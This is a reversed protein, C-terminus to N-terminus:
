WKIDKWFSEGVRVKNLSFAEDITKAVDAYSRRVGLDVGKRICNGAVILPVYERTHDTGPTTPDCGHDATIVLIDDEDMLEMIEPLRSDFYELANGYGIPDNRHGYLMDFDILNAFLLGEWHEKLFSKIADIGEANNGSHVSRTLGRHAFIDEIKGVGCVDYGAEKLYDLVTPQIPPLSFDRRKKTRRFKGPSGIFPRAIVRGVAHEGRLISRAVECMRYLEEVPIIDEHAAIQFVSDASTYVIPYGTRMHEEGLEQIIVTGSAPKNGLVKRGIKREFESIIEGPFGNPYVPFPKSVVVGAIEWHGSTTDKGASAEQMKGYCGYPNELPEIGEIREINGVGLRQMNPMYLGGKAEAVHVITNVGVDGFKYSDPAEGIGVSDLVILVFRMSDVGKPERIVGRTFM